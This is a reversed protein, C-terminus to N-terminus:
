CRNAIKKQSIEKIKCKLHLTCYIYIEIKFKSLVSANYIEKRSAFKEISLKFNNLKSNFDIVWDKSIFFQYILRFYIKSETSNMKTYM